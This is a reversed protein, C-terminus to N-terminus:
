YDDSQWTIIVDPAILKITNTINVVVGHDLKTPAIMSVVSLNCEQHSSALHSAFDESSLKKGNFNVKGDYLVDVIHTGCLMLCCIGPCEGDTEIEVAQEDNLFSLYAFYMVISLLISIFGFQAGNNM